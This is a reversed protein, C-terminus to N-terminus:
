PAVGATELFLTRAGRATLTWGMDPAHCTECTRPNTGLSAFFPNTFDLAGTVHFTEAVGFTDRDAALAPDSAVLGDDVADDVGCGACALLLGGSVVRLTKFMWSRRHKVLM